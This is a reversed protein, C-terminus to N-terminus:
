GRGNRSGRPAGPSLAGMCGVANEAQCRRTSALLVRQPRLSAGCESASSMQASSAASLRRDTPNYRSPDSGQGRRSPNPWTQEGRDGRIHRRQWRHATEHTSGTRRRRDVREPNRSIEPRRPPNAVVGSFRQPELGNRTITQWELGNIKSRKAGMLGMGATISRRYIPTPSRDGGM